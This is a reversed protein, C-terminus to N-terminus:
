FFNAFNEVTCISELAYLFHIVFNLTQGFRKKRANLGFVCFILDHLNRVKDYGQLLQARQVSLM